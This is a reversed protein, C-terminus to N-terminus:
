HKRSYEYEFRKMNKFSLDFVYSMTNAPSIALEITSHSSELLSTRSKLSSVDRISLSQMSATSGNRSIGHKRIQEIGYWKGRELEESKPDLVKSQFM